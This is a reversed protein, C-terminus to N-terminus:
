SRKRRTNTRRKKQRPHKKTRNVKAKKVGKTARRKGSLLRRRSGGGLTNKKPLFKQNNGDSSKDVSSKSTKFLTKGSFKLQRGPLDPLFRSWGTKERPDWSESQNLVPPHQSDDAFPVSPTPPGPPVPPVPPVPPGSQGSQDNGLILKEAAVADENANKELEERKQKAEELEKTADQITQAAVVAKNQADAALRAKEAASTLLDAAAADKDVPPFAPADSNLSLPLLGTLQKLVSGSLEGEIQGGPAPSSSPSAASTNVVPGSQESSPQIAPAGSAESSPPTPPVAPTLPPINEGNSLWDKIEGMVKKRELLLSARELDKETPNEVVTSPILNAGSIIESYLQHVQEFKANKDLSTDLIVSKISDILSRLNNAQNEIQTEKEAYIKAIAADDKQKMADDLKKKFEADAAGKAKQEENQFYLEFTKFMESGALLSKNEEFYQQMQEKTAQPKIGVIRQVGKKASDMFGPNKSAFYSEFVMRKLKTIENIVKNEMKVKQLKNYADQSAEMGKATRRIWVNGMVLAAGVVSSIGGINVMTLSEVCILLLEKFLDHSAELIEKFGDLAGLLFKFPGSERRNASRQAKKEAADRDSESKIREADAKAAAAQADSSKKQIAAIVAANELQEKRAEVVKANAQQLLVSNPAPSPQWEITKVFYDKTLENLAETQENFKSVRSAIDDGTEESVDLGVFGAAVQTYVSRIYDETLFLQFGLHETTKTALAYDVVDKQVGPPLKSVFSTLPNSIAEASKEQNFESLHNAMQDVYYTAANELHSGSAAAKSDSFMSNSKRPSVKEIDQFYPSTEDASGDNNADEVTFLVRAVQDIAKARLSEKYLGLTDRTSNILGIADEYGTKPAIYTVEGTVADTKINAHVGDVLATLPYSIQGHNFEDATKKSLSALSKIIPNSEPSNQGEFLGSIQQITNVIISTDASRFHYDPVKVSISTSAPQLYEPLPVKELFNSFTNGWSPQNPGVIQLSTPMDFRNAVATSGPPPPLVGEGTVLGLGTAAAVLGPWLKMGGTMDKNRELDGKVFALSAYKGTLNKFVANIDLGKEILDDNINEPINLEDPGVVDVFRKVEGYLKEFGSKKEPTLFYTCKGVKGSNSNIATTLKNALELDEPEVEFEVNPDNYYYVIIPIEFLDDKVTRTCVGLYMDFEESSYKNKLTIKDIEHVVVIPEITEEVAGPQGQEIQGKNESFKRYLDKLDLAKGCEILTKQRLQIIRGYKRNLLDDLENMKDQYESAPANIPIDNTLMFEKITNNIDEELNDDMELMDATVQDVVGFEVPEQIETVDSPPLTYPPLSQNGYYGIAWEKLKKDDADQTQYYLPQAPIGDEEFNGTTPNFKIVGGKM